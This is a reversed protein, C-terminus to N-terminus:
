PLEIKSEKAQEQDAATPAQQDMKKAEVFALRLQHLTNELLVAEQYTLNGKTKEELIGLTDILHQAADLDRQLKLLPDQLFGMAALAQASLTSVLLSFSPPPLAESQSSQQRARREAEEKEKQVQAKWDDDVVIKPEDNPNNESM